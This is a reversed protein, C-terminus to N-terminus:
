ERDSCLCPWESEGDTASDTETRDRWAEEGVVSVLMSRQGLLEVLQDEVVEVEVLGIRGLRGSDSSQRM